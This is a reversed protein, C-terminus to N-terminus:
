FIEKQKNPILDVKVIQAKEVSGKPHTREGEQVM